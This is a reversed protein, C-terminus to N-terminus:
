FLEKGLSTKKLELEAERIHLIDIAEEVSLCDSELLIILLKIDYTTSM